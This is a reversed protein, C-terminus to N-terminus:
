TSVASSFTLFPIRRHLEFILHRDHGAGPAIDALFDGLQEGGFAGLDGDDIEVPRAALADGIRDLGLAAIRRQENGVHRVAAVDGPEDPRPRV